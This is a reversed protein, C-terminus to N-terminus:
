RYRREHMRAIRDLRERKDFQAVNGRSVRQIFERDTDDFYDPESGYADRLFAKAQEWSLGLIVLFCVVILLYEM